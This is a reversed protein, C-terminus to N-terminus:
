SVQATFSTLEVPVFWPADLKYFGSSQAAFQTMSDVSVVQYGSSPISIATWTSGGNTTRWSGPGTSYSNTIVVNGDSPQVYVGWMSIGTFGSQLNWTEGYDTSKLLGGGGSWKTAWAIGPHTFDVSITPIEGSTSYKQSWTLGYDPVKLFEQEM